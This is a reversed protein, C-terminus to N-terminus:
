RLGLKRTCSPWAGWGQRAKLLRGRKIQEERSAQHPYGTGGVARWSSLSFQLGGYYGNGTNISWRGGAECAALRDWVGRPIAARQRRREARRQRRREAKQRRREAQAAQKRKAELQEKLTARPMLNLARAVFVALEGRRVHQDPCFRAARSTCGATIGAAALRNIADAHVGRIDRFYSDSTAPLDAARALLSAMQGRRLTDGICYEDEACGQSIGAAALRNIADEHVAEDDDDFHDSRADPLNFASSIIAAVPGRRVADHPCFEGDGCGTVIEDEVLVEIAEEYPTGDDDTFADGANAATAPLVLGATLTCCLLWRLLAM